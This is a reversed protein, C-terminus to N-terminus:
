MLCIYAICPLLTHMCYITYSTYLLHICYIISGKYHLVSNWNIHLLRETSKIVVVVILPGYSACYHNIKQNMESCEKVFSFSNYKLIILFDKLRKGEKHDFLKRCDESKDGNQRAFASAHDPMKRFIIILHTVTNISSPVSAFM